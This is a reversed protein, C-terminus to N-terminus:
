QLLAKLREVATTVAELPGIDRRSHSSLIVHNAEKLFEYIQDAEDKRAKFTDGGLRFADAAANRLSRSKLDPQQTSWNTLTPSKELSAAMTKLADHSARYQAEADRAAAEATAIAQDFDTLRIGKLWNVRSQLESAIQNATQKAAPSLAANVKSTNALKLAAGLRQEATDVLLMEKQATTRFARYKALNHTKRKADDFVLRDFHVANWAKEANTLAAGLGTKTKAKAKDIFSKQKQWYTNTLDNPYKIPFKNTTFLAIPISV